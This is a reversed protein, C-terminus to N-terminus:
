QASKTQPEPIFNQWGGGLAKYLRILATTIQGRSSALADQAQLKSREADLVELFSNLGADYRSRALEAARDSAAASYALAQHRLQEQTYASIANEIDENANLVAQQWQLLAQEQTESQIKVQQRLKGANFIPWSFVSGLGFARSASEFLNGSSISELGLSGQLSLQPYLAAKSVGIRATEAALNREAARISPLRRMAEAPIGIALTLPPTPVTGSHQNLLKSRNGIPEGLLTTIRNEAQTIALEFSPILARTNELNARARQLDLEEVLGADFQSSVLSYTDQQSSLNANAIQLRAQQSRLDTYSLAVEAVVSVLANRLQEQQSQMDANAAEIGRRKGGFLDIEWSADISSNYVNYITNSQTTGNISTGVRQAGANIGASPALDSKAMGYKLRTQILRSQAIKLDLNQAVSVEILTNLTSDNLNAWWAQLNEAATSAIAESQAAKFEAASNLTPTKYDPGVTVCGAAFGSLAVTIAIKPLLNGRKILTAQKQIPASM